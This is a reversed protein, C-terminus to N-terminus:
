NEKKKEETTRAVTQEGERWGKKPFRKANNM